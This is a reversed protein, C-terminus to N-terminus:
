QSLWGRPLYIQERQEGEFTKMTEMSVGTRSWLSGLTGWAGAVVISRQVPQAIETSQCISDVKGLIGKERSKIVYDM